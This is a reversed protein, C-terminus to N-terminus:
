GETRRTGVHNNTPYISSDLGVLNKKLEGGSAMRPGHKDKGRLASSTNTFQLFFSVSFININIYWDLGVSPRYFFFCGKLKKFGLLVEPGVRGLGQAGM